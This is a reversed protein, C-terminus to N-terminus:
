LRLLTYSKAASSWSALTKSKTWYLTLYGKLKLAIARITYTVRASFRWNLADAFAFASVTQNAFNATLELRVNAGKVGATASARGYAWARGHGSLWARGDSLTPKAGISMGIGVNGRITIPVWAITFKYTIDGPTLNLSASRGSSAHVGKGSVSKYFIRNNGLYAYASARNRNSTYNDSHVAARLYAVRKRMGLFNAYASVRFDGDARGAAGTRRASLSAGAYISGGLISNGMSESYTKSLSKTLTFSTYGGMLQANADSAAFTLITAAFFATINTRFMPFDGTPIKRNPSNPWLSTRQSPPSRLAGRTQERGELNRSRGNRQM